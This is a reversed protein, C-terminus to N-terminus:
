RTRVELHVHPREDGTFRDIQSPMSLSRVTAVPTVGARVEDGEAVEADELHFLHVVVDQDDAPTIAVVVDTFRGYLAYPAVTTVVGDVPSLVPEGEPLAIDVASTFATGRERSAMVAHDHGDEDIEEFSPVHSDVTRGLPDLPVAASGPGAQHFGVVAEADSTAPVVLELAGAAAMPEVEPARAGATLGQEPARQRDRAAQAGIDAHAAPGPDDVVQEGLDPGHDDQAGPASPRPLWLGATAVQPADQGAPAAARREPASGGSSTDVPGSSASSSGALVSVTLPAVLAATVLVLLLEAVSPRRARRRRTAAGGGSPPVSGRPM